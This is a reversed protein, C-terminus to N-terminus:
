TLIALGRTETLWGVGLLERMLIRRRQLRSRTSPVRPAPPRVPPHSYLISGFTLTMCTMLPIEWLPLHERSGTSVYRQCGTGGPWTRGILGVSYGLYQCIFLAWNFTM